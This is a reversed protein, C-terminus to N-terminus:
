KFPNWGGSRISERFLRAAFSDGLYDFWQGRLRHNLLAQLRHLEAQEESAHGSGRQYGLLFDLLISKNLPVAFMREICIRIGVNSTLDLDSTKIVVINARLLESPSFPLFPQRVRKTM